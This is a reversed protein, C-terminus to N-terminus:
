MTGQPQIKYKQEEYRDQRCPENNKLITTGVLTCTAICIGVCVSIRVCVSIGISIGVSVRIGVSIRIARGGTSMLIQAKEECPVVAVSPPPPGM